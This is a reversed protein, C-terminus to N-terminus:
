EPAPSTQIHTLIIASNNSAAATTDSNWASVLMILFSLAPPFVTLANAQRTANETSTKRNRNSDIYIPQTVGCPTLGLAGAGTSCCAGVCSPWGQCSFPDPSAARAARA